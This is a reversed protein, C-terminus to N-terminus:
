AYSFTLSEMLSHSVLSFMSHFRENHVCTQMQKTYGYVTKESFRRSFVGKHTRMVMILGIRLVPTTLALDDSKESKKLSDMENNSPNPRDLTRQVISKRNNDAARKPPKARVEKLMCLWFWKSYSSVHLPFKDAVHVKQLRRKRVNRLSNHLRWNLPHWMRSM